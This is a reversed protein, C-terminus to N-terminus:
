THLFYPMSTGKPCSIFSLSAVELMGISLPRRSIGLNTTVYNKNQLKRCGELFSVKVVNPGPKIHDTWDCLGNLDLRCFDMM